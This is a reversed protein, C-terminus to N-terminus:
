EILRKRLLNLGTLASVHINRARSKGFNFSFAETKDKGAIAFWVLGVPKEESGGDPGAVGSTAIAY